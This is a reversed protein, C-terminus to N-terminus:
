MEKNCYVLELYRVTDEISYGADIIFHDTKTRKINCIVNEIDISWTMASENLSHFRVNPTIVIDRNITDSIICPLGATQAEVLVFPLGEFFSPMLFCDFVQMWDPIDYREGLFIVKKEIKLSHVKEKITEQLPGIGALFLLSNEHILLYKSFVDIIFDHNKVAVFRGVHGIVHTDRSINYENRLRERRGRDYSLINLNVSNKIVVAPKTNFFWKAALSSCAFYHTGYKLGFKRNLRHLVKNHFGECSSNHSHIIRVPIKYKHAYYVPAISSLNGECYHIATYLYGYKRFFIDLERYYKFFQRRPPLRYIISGLREAEKSNYTIEDSFILFDVHYRKKDIGRLINMMFEETGNKNLWYSIFLINIM